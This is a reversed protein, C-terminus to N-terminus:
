ARKNPQPQKERTSGNAEQYHRFIHTTLYLIYVVKVCTSAKRKLCNPMQSKIGQSNLLKESTYGQRTSAFYLFNCPAHILVANTTPLIQWQNFILVTYM